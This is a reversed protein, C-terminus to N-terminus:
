LSMDVGSMGDFVGVAAGSFLFVNGYGRESIQYLKSTALSINKISHQYSAYVKGGKKMYFKQDVSINKAGTPLLVSNGIGNTSIKYNSFTTTGNSSYVKTSITNNSLSANEFRAGILDYSRIKPEVLWTVSTIVTCVSSTCSKAISLKKSGTQHNAGKTAIIDENSSKIVVENENIKLDLLWYYDEKEMRELYELSYFEKVFNYEKKTLKVGNSNVYYSHFNDTEISQASVSYNLSFIFVTIMMAKFLIKKM